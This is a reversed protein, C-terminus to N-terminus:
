VLSAFRGFPPLHPLHNKWSEWGRIESLLPTLLKGCKRSMNHNRERHKRGENKTALQESRRLATSLPRRAQEVVAVKSTMAFAALLSVSSVGGHNLALKPTLGRENM